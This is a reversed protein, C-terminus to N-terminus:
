QHLFDSYGSFVVSRDCTVSLNQYMINYVEDQDLNSCWHHYASIVYTTTFGVVIRDRGRRGRNINHKSNVAFTTIMTPSM